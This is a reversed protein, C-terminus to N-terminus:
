IGKMEAHANTNATKRQEEDYGLYRMVMSVDSWGMTNMVINLDKGNSDYLFRAFTKRLGHAHKIPATKAM